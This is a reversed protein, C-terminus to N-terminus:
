ADQGALLGGIEALDGDDQNRRYVHGIPLRALDCMRELVVELAQDFSDADSAMEAVDHLVQAELAQQEQKDQARKRELVTTLQAGVNQMVALLSQDEALERDAFFELVAEVRGELKVPFGFAGRLGLERVLQNRPLEPDLAIDEIWVSTERELM